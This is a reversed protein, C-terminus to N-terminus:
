AFVPNTAPNFGPRRGGAEIAAVVVDLCGRRVLDHNIYCLKLAFANSVDGQGDLESWLEFLSALQRQALSVYSQYSVPWRISDTHDAFSMEFGGTDVLIEADGIAAVVAM